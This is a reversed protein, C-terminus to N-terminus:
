HFGVLDAGLMGSLLELKGHAFELLKRARGRFTGSSRLGLTPANKRSWDRSCRLTTIRCSYLRLTPERCRRWIQGRSSKIQQKTVDGILHASSPDRILLTVCHGYVKMPSATTIAKKKRSPSGSGACHTAHNKLLFPSATMGILPRVIPTAVVM